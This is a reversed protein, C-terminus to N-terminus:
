MFIELINKNSKYFMKLHYYYKKLLCTLFFFFFHLSRRFQIFKFNLLNLQIFIFNSFKFSNWGFKPPAVQM